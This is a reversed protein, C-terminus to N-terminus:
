SMPISEDEQETVPVGHVPEKRWWLKWSGRFYHRILTANTSTLSNGYGGTAFANGDLVKVGPEITALATSFAGPGTKKLTDQEGDEVRQVVTDLARRLVPHGQAFAFTWQCYQTLAVFKVRRMEEEDQMIGEIGVLGDSSSIGPWTDIPRICEVDLDAYVGGHVYVVAYRFVDAREVPRLRDWVGWVRPFNTRVLEAAEDDDWLRYQWDPNLSIWSSAKSWTPEAHSKWTQHILKPIRPPRAASSPHLANPAECWAGWRKGGTSERRKMNGMTRAEYDEKSVGGKTAGAVDYMVTCGGAVSGYGEVMTVSRNYHHSEYLQVEEFCSPVCDGGERPAPTGESGQDDGGRRMWEVCVGQFCTTGSRPCTSENTCLAVPAGLRSGAWPPSLGALPPPSFHM